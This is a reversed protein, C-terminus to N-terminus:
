LLSNHIRGFRVKRPGRRRDRLCLISMGALIAVEGATPQRSLYAPAFLACVAGLGILLHGVRILWNTKPTMLNVTCIASWLVILSCATNLTVAILSYTIM